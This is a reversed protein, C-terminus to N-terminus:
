QPAHSHLKRCYGCDIYSFVTIHHQKDSSEYVLMEDSQIADTLSKYEGETLAWLPTAISQM